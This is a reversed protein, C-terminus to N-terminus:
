GLRHLKLKRWFTTRSMGLAEAAKGKRFGAQRLASLIREAEAHEADPSM